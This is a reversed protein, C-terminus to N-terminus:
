GEDAEKLTYEYLRDDIRFGAEVFADLVTQVSAIFGSEKATLLMAITSTIPINRRQAEIVVAREDAYLLAHLEEALVIAESEGTELKEQLKQVEAVADVKRVDIWDGVARKIDDAGPKGEGQIVIEEYVAQPLILSSYVRRVLALEGARAASILPSSDSVIPIHPM